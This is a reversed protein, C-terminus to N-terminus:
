GNSAGAGANTGGGSASKRRASKRRRAPALHSLTYTGRGRQIVLSGYGNRRFADSCAQTDLAAVLSDFSTTGVTVFVSKSAKKKGPM